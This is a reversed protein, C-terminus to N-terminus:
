YGGSEAGEGTLKIPVIALGCGFTSMVGLEVGLLSDELTHTHTHTHTHTIESM